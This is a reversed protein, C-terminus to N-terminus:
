CKAEAAVKAALRARASRIDSIIAEAKSAAQLLGNRVTLLEREFDALEGETREITALASVETPEQAVEPQPPDVPPPAIM